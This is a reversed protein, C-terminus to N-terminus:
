VVSKRDEIINARLEGANGGRVGRLDSLGAKCDFPGIRESRSDWAVLYLFRSQWVHGQSRLLYTGPIKLLLMRLACYSQQASVLNSDSSLFRVGESMTVNRM